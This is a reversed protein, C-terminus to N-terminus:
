SKRNYVLKQKNRGQTREITLVNGSVSYVDVIEAPPKELDFELVDLQSQKAAQEQRAKFEADTLFLRTGFQQPREFPVGVMDTSPWIGQLDPDGWPTRPPQYAPQAPAQASLASAAAAIVVAVFLFRITRTMGSNYAGM